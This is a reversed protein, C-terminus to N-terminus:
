RGGSKGFLASKYEPAKVQLLYRENGCRYLCCGRTLYKMLDQESEELQIVEGIAKINTLGPNFLYQHTPISFLPKTYEQVNPLLFDEVNQSAIIVASEKKRVRKMANRIYEVATLNSLFLYMEDIASVTNGKGLLQNSMYSLINFLMADKLRRNTDLLGKVGFCLFNDDSINTHGDFYTAESGVCMSHVGLCIEQLIHETYVNKIKNDFTLFEEECLAYFDSMIPYDVSKRATLDTTEDIGFRKYLKKLLIEITDLQSDDFDKYTRFFDKLFAIHQSLPTVKNFAGPAHVDHEAGNENSNWVKPELPNIRYEGSMFDVYCGGLNETLERFEAEPDLCIVSKGSERINTLILKLLYSKGQGSNGLILANSTTKDNSRRDFDVLISGGYKDKGLYIGNPDTKGSFNLPYLNAVSSAPLIREYMDGFQNYGLPFVSLFGEKQRLILRDVAIKSRTLEMTVDSKLEELEKMSKAKLEIFVSCHLLPEKEKRLNTILTVVDHLNNEAEIMDSVNNAGSMLRNKRTHNQIVKRQEMSDVPRSYIRLTVNNRDAIQSLIAQEETSPPYSRVAWVCRYSNGFVYCDMMFKVTAPFIMDFFDKTRIKEQEEESLKKKRFIAM